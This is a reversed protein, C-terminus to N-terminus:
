SAFGPARFQWEYRRGSATPSSNFREDCGAFYPIVSDQFLFSVLGAVPRDGNLVPSM